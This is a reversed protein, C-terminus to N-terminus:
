EHDVTKYSLCVRDDKNTIEGNFLIINTIDTLACCFQPFIGSEDHSDTISCDVFMITGDDRLMRVVVNSHQRTRKVNNLHKMFLSIDCSVLFEGIWHGIVEHRSYRTAQLWSRNVVLFCGYEDLVQLIPRPPLCRAINPLSCKEYLPILAYSKELEDGTIANKNCVKYVKRRKMTIIRTKQRM